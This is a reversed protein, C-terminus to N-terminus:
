SIRPAKQYASAVKKLADSDDRSCFAILAQLYDASEFRAGKGLRLYELAPTRYSSGAAKRAEERLVPNQIREAEELKHRYLMGLSLGLAYATEPRQYGSNWAQQLHKTANGYEHLAIYGNGLASNGPGLGLHGLEKMQEQIDRMRMKVLEKEPTVDHLPLLYATRLVGEMEKVEQGFQHALAIQKSASWRARLGIGAFIMVLLLASSAVALIAKQKQAKKTLRYLVTTPRAKIPDGALYRGLDEALAKASEYRRVPEKELCKSVITELDFPINPHHSRLPVPEDNIVKMLVEIGTGSEFPLRGTLLEYFTVGLSYVDTRRDLNRDGKAQEPPMYWPTGVIAGTQTLGQSEAERALGFDMVYPIWQGDESRELMINAPKLDRHILGARHAAHVAQAVEKLLKVKEDLTLDAVSQNLIFLSVHLLTPSWRCEVFIASLLRAKLFHRPPYRLCCDMAAVTAYQHPRDQQVDFDLLVIGFM